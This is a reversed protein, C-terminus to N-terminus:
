SCAGAAPPRSTWVTMKGTPARLDGVAPRGGDEVAEQGDGAARDLV